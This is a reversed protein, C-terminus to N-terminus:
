PLAIDYRQNSPLSISSSFLEQDFHRVRIVYNGPPINGIFYRGDGGTLFSLERSGGQLVVWVSVATRGNAYFVTGTVFTRGSAARTPSPLAQGAVLALGALLLDRRKGRTMSM